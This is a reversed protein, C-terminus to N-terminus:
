ATEAPKVHGRTDLMERVRRVLVHPEFPKELFDVGRALRGTTSMAQRPYGSMFLVPINPYRERMLQALTAGDVGEPLVVDTVLLDPTVDQELEALIERWSGGARVRYGARTLVLVLLERVSAEDEVMVITEGGGRNEKTEAVRQEPLSPVQQAAPLYIKFTSGRGPESYVWISGGSQKVIGYVTSLGLGTGKGPEKTTFFPEFVRAVTAEDMGCGTDSVALMAYCGPEVSRHTLRYDAELTVNGTEVTLRGGGAMADRANVALNMLVQEMRAPDVETSALDAALSFDLDIDEGLTRRLLSEVGRVIDNLSLVQPRLVQRRSFALIQRTLDAAHDGTDKIASVLKRQSDDLSVDDLLLSAGGIIVALMNNFDHAIGGALQGVAEMKQAQRLQEEAQVLAEETRKRETVDQNAGHTKITRDYQDKTVGIRVVINRIEGDRRVIRHEVNARYDPDTSEIAKNVEEAVMHQEDPHVFRQAYVDAKMQYGGELEATTHYLAYFRDNFTFTGTEVDLEWNVLDAVEMAAELQARSTRLAEEARKRESVDQIMAVTGVPSGDEGRFLVASVYGWVLEGDKRRYQKDLELSALEGALLARTHSQSRGVDGPATVEELARGALEGEEYGLFRSFSPNVRLFRQETDLVAIGISGQQFIVRFREESERLAEEAQKRETIDRAISLIAPKGQFSVPSSSIEVPITRGDRTEHKTEFLQRDGQRNREIRKAIDEASLYPDIDALGMTLLEARSYGLAEVARDNVELFEGSHGIVFATDNMGDILQKREAEQRKRETVDRAAAFVGLVKGEQDRYLSANYLVDTLKGQRDCITLPYDIVSGRAFVEEYGRRASAPDTFHDSFETDLLEARSRGTIRVTAENVDTIKGEPSITVLPDLSAEILSRAYATSAAEREEARKRAAVDRAISSAGILQGTADYIPSVTLSVETPQGDRRVRVTEYHEIREGARIKALITTMEDERGPPMLVSIPRGIMEAASYGYIAEAAANWTVVVGDLTKAVIADDSGDVISALLSTRELIGAHDTECHNM